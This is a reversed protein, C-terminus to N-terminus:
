VKDPAAYVKSTIPTTGTDREYLGDGDLDWKYHTISGDADSSASADFTVKEGTQPSQSSASLAAAPGGPVQNSFEIPIRILDRDLSTSCGSMHFRTFYLFGRQGVTDFNRSKSDNDLISPDRIQEPGDGCSYTWPLEGNMVLKPQS